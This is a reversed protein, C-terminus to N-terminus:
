RWDVSQAYECQDCFGCLYKCRWFDLDPRWDKERGIAEITDHAWRRTEELKEICFPEKIRVGTRYCNFELFDPTRGFASTVPISYLYLQRLYQDLEEDTKTKKKRNSRPKLARSKHDLICLAGDKDEYIMDVFGIFRKGDDSFRVLQETSIVRGDIPSLARISETGQKFYSLRISDSPCAGIAESPFRIFYDNLSDSKSVRGSYYAAFIDHILSGYESFFMPAEETLDMYKLYFQYPCQLFANIRSYSWRMLDILYNAM